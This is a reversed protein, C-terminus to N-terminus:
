GGLDELREQTVGDRGQRDPYDHIPGDVYVAAHHEAYLFDPRTGAREVLEVGPRLM